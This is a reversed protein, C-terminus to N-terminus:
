LHQGWMGYGPHRIEGRRHMRKLNSMVNNMSCKTMAVISAPAFLQRPYKYFLQTIKDRVSGYFLTIDRDLTIETRRLQYLAELKEELDYIKEITTKTTRTM